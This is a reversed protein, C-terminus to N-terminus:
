DKKNPIKNDQLNRYVPYKQRIYGYSYGSNHALENLTIKFGLDKCDDHYKFWANLGSKQPPPSPKVPQSSKTVVTLGDPLLEAPKVSEIQFNLEHLKSILARAFLELKKFINPQGKEAIILVVLHFPYTEIIIKALIISPLTPEQNKEAIRLGTIEKEVTDGKITEVGYIPKIYVPKLPSAEFNFHNGLLVTVHAEDFKQDSNNIRIEIVHSDSAESKKDSLKASKDALKKRQM